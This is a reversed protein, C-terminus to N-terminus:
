SKGGSPPWHVYFTTDEIWCNLFGEETSIFSYNVYLGIFSSKVFTLKLGSIAKM